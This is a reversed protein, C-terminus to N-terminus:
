LASVDELKEITLEEEFFSRHHRIKEDDWNWWALIQLKECIIEDFRYRLVRAPSGGVIAYPPVNKNVTSNAAIVAGDGITVGSLIVVQAGIWVDHGITIPGNSEIDKNESGEWINEQRDAADILNRFIYYTTARQTIHNFEQINCNRAISCFNGITVGHIKALIDSGPGNFSTYRGINVKGSIVSNVIASHDGISVEGNVTSNVVLAHGGISVTSTINSNNLRATPHVSPYIQVSTM